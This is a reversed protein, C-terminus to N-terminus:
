CGHRSPINIIFKSIGNVMLCDHCVPTDDKLPVSCLGLVGLWEFWEDFLVM